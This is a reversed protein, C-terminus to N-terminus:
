ETVGDDKRADVAEPIILKVRQGRQLVRLTLFEILELHHATHEPREGGLQIDFHIGERAQHAADQLRALIGVVQLVFKFDEGTGTEVKLVLYARTSRNRGASIRATYPRVTAGM